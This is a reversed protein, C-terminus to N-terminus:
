EVRRLVTRNPGAAEGRLNLAPELSRIFGEVNDPKFTGGIRLAGLAAEGLELQHRNLRNFEAVAEALPTEHFQLRPAQWDLERAIDDLTVPEIVPASAAEVLPVVAREGVTVVPVEAARAVPVGAVEVQEVKVRGETVLVEVQKAGLRVNFATGVARVEVGSAVVVFPRAADKWVSFHAEGGQLMVRREGESYQVAIRTGDKLEVRSGDPLAMRENVRLYSRPPGAPPTETPRQVGIFGITVAAAAALGALAPKWWRALASTQAFLDPNPASTQVPQWDSLHMMRELAAAQQAVVEAHLPHARLWQLYDDQEAPTLGRDRRALWLSAQEEVLARDPAPIHPKL